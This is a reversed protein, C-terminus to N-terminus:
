GEAAGFGLVFRLIAAAHWVFDDPSGALRQSLEDVGWWRPDSSQGPVARPDGKAYCEFVVHMSPYAGGTGTVVALPRAAGFTVNPVAEWDEAAAAVATVEVGTEEVVERVVAEVPSEGAEWRGGPLEWRGRVVEGVRDRRQLLVSSRTHDRFALATVVPVVLARGGSVPVPLEIWDDGSWVPYM